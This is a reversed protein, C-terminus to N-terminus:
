FITKKSMLKSIPMVTEKKPSYNGNQCTGTMKAKRSLRTNKPLRWAPVNMEQNGFLNTLTHAFGYNNDGM